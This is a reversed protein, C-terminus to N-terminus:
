RPKIELQTGDDFWWVEKIGSTEVYV